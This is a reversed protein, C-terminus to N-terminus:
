EFRNLCNVHIRGSWLTQSFVDRMWLGKEKRTLRGATTAFHNKKVLKLRQWAENFKHCIEGSQLAKIKIEGMAVTRMYLFGDSLVPCGGIIGQCWAAHHRCRRKGALSFAWAGPAQFVALIWQWGM